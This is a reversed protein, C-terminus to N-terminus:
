PTPVVVQVENSVAGAGTHNLARLRVYYRGAPVQPITVSNGSSVPLVALDALGPASGAEVRYGTVVDDPVTWSLTVSNGSVTPADLTPSGPAVSIAMQVCTGSPVPALFALNGTGADIRDFRGGQCVTGPSTPPRQAPPQQTLMLVSGGESDSWLGLRGAQDTFSVTSWTAADVIWLKASSTGTTLTSIPVILRQGDAAITAKGVSSVDASYQPVGAEGIMTGGPIEYARISGQNSSLIFLTSEDDTVASFRGDLTLTWEVAGTEIDLAKVTREIGTVQSVYVRRGSAAVGELTWGTTGAISREGSADFVVVGGASSQVIVREHRPDVLPTGSFCPLWGTTRQRTDFVAVQCLGALRQTSLM